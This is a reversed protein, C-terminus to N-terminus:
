NVSGRDPESTAQTHGGGQQSGGDGSLAPEVLVGRLGWEAWQFGPFFAGVLRVYAARARDFDPRTWVLALPRVAGGALLAPLTRPWVFGTAALAAPEPALSALAARLAGGAEEVGLARRELLFRLFNALLDHVAGRLHPTASARPLAPLLFRHLLAAAPAGPPLAVEGTGGGRRGPATAANCARQVVTVLVPADVAGGPSVGLAALTLLRELHAPLTPVLSPFCAAGAALLAMSRRHLPATARLAALSAGLAATHAAAAAALAGPEGGGGGGVELECTTLLRQLCACLVAFPLPLPCADGGREPAALLEGAAASLRSYVDPPYLPLVRPGDGLPPAAAPPPAAAAAAPAPLPAYAAPPAQAGAPPGAFAVDGAALLAVAHTLVADSSLAAGTECAAALARHVRQVLARSLAPDALAMLLQMPAAPAPPSAGVPAGGGGGGGGAAAAAAAAAAAGKAAAAGLRKALEGELAAAVREVLAFLARASDPHEGANYTRCNTVVLRMDGRLADADGYLGEKAKFEMTRLDMPAKIVEAYRAALLPFLEAVPKCFGEGLWVGEAKGGPPVLHPPRRFTERMGKAAKVTNGVARALADRLAAGTAAPRAAAAAAAAGALAARAERVV